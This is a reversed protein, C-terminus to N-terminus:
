SRRLNGCTAHPGHWEGTARCSALQGECDFNSKDRVRLQVCYKMAQACTTPCQLQEAAAHEPIVAGLMSASLVLLFTRM